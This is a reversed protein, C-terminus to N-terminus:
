LSCAPADIAAQLPHDTASPGVLLTFEGGEIRWGDAPAWHAFARAPLELSVHTEEGPGAQVVAFGALWLPPRAVASEPRTLYAQVVERGFRPGTNRLAVSVRAPADPSPPASVHARTYDWTTYGFGHGFPWAPTADAWAWARYGINLGEAYEVAGDVPTTSLVPVDEERGPWTTPLRGSPEVDGLLVSALAGGFEQGGFWTLLIAGVEDRWPLLVPAGANVVVVTRPNARAVRRDLEDQAGPLALDRRDFGESEIAETTGVVVIAVDADAAARVARELEEEPSTGAAAIGLALSAFM